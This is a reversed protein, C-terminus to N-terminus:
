LPRCRSPQKCIHMASRRRLMVLHRGQHRWCNGQAANKGVAARRPSFSAAREVPKRKGMV